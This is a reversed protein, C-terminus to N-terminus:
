GERRSGLWAEIEDLQEHTLGVSLTPAV